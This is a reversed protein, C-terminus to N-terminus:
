QTNAPLLLHHFGIHVCLIHVHKCNKTPRIELRENDALLLM